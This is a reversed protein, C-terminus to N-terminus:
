EKVYSTINPTFRGSELGQYKIWRFPHEKEYWVFTPPVFRDLVRGIIGIDAILRIKLCEYKQDNIKIKEPGKPRVMVRYLAPEYTILYFSQSKDGKLAKPMLSKVFHNLSFPCITTGKIPYRYKKEVPSKERYDILQLKILKSKYNFEQKAKFIIDGNVKKIQLLSSKQVFSGNEINGEARMLWNTNDFPYYSGTGKNEILFNNGDLSFSYESLSRKNENSIELTKAQGSQEFDKWNLSYVPSQILAFFALFVFIIQLKLKMALLM